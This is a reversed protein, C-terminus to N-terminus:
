LAPTPSTPDTVVESCRSSEILISSSNRLMIQFLLALCLNKISLVLPFVSVHTQVDFGFFCHLAFGLPTIPFPSRHFQLALWCSTHPAPVHLSAASHTSSHYASTFISKLKPGCPHMHRELPFNQGSTHGLTPNSSWITTRHM